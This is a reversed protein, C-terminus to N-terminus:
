SEIKKRTRGRVERKNKYDYVEWFYWYEDPGLPGGPDKSSAPYEELMKEESM